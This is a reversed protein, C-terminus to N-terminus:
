KLQERIDAIKGHELSYCKRCEICKRGGCNIDINETEITKKDYVTFVADIYPVVDHCTAVADYASKNVFLSSAIIHLNSPIVGGKNVYDSVM